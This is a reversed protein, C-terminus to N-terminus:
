DNGVETNLRAIFTQVYERVYARTAERQEDTAESPIQFSYDLQATPPTGEGHYISKIELTSLAIMNFYTQTQEMNPERRNGYESIRAPVIYASYTRMRM